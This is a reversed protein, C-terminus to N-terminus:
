GLRRKSAAYKLIRAMGSYFLELRDRLRDGNGQGYKWEVMTMLELSIIRRRPGNENPPVWKM